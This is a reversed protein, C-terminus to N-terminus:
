LRDASQELVKAKIVQVIQLLHSRVGRHNFPQQLLGGCLIEVREDIHAFGRSIVGHHTFKGTYLLATGERLQEPKIEKTEGDIRGGEEQTDKSLHQAGKRTYSCGPGQEIADNIVTGKFVQGGEKSLKGSQVQFRNSCM